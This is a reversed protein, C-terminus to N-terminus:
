RRTVILPAALLSIAANLAVLVYGLLDNLDRGMHPLLPEVEPAIMYLFIAVIADIVFAWLLTGIPDERYATYLRDRYRTKMFEHEDWRWRIILEAADV